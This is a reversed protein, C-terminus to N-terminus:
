LFRTDLPKAFDNFESALVRCGQRELFYKIASRLDQFDYITSCIFVTPPKM